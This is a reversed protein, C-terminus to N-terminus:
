ERFLSRWLFERPVSQRKLVFRENLVPRTDFAVTCNLMYTALSIAAQENEPIEDACNEYNIM